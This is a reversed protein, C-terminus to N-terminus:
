IVTPVPLTNRASEKRRQQSHSSESTERRCRTLIISPTIPRATRNRKKSLAAEELDECNITRSEQSINSGRRDRLGRKRPTDKLVNLGLVAQDSSANKAPSSHRDFKLLLRRKQMEAKTTWKRSRKKEDYDFPRTTTISLCIILHSILKAQQM